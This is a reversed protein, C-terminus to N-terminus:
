PRVSFLCLPVAVLAISRPVGPVADRLVFGTM